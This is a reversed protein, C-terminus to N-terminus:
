KQINGCIKLKEFIKSDKHCKPYTNMTKDENERNKKEKSENEIKESQKIIRRNKCKNNQIVPSAHDSILSSNMFLAVNRIFSCNISSSTM